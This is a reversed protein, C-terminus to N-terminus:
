HPGIGEAGSLVDSSVTQRLFKGSAV